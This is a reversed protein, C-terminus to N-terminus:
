QVRVVVVHSYLLHHLRKLLMDWCPWFFFPSYLCTCQRLDRNRSARYVCGCNNQISFWCLFSFSIRMRSSIYNTAILIAGIKIYVIIFISSFQVFWFHYYACLSWGKAVLSQHQSDRYVIQQWCMHTDRLVKIYVRFMFICVSGREVSIHYEHTHTHPM